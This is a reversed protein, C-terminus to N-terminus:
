VTSKKEVYNKLLELTQLIGDKYGDAVEQSTLIQLQVLKTTADSLKELFYSEEVLGASKTPYVCTFEKNEDITKISGQWIMDMGNWQLVNGGEDYCTYTIDDGQKWNTQVTVNKMWENFQVANTLAQWVKEIPANIEIEFNNTAM